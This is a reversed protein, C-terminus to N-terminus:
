SIDYNNVILCQFLELYFLIWTVKDNIVSNDSWIVLYRYFKYCVFLIYLDM